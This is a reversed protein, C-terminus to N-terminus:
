NANRAGRTWLLCERHLGMETGAPYGGSETKKLVGDEITYLILPRYIAPEALTSLSSRLVYTDIGTAPV